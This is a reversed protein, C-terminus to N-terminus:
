ILRALAKQEMEDFDSSKYPGSYRCSSTVESLTMGTKLEIRRVPVPLM